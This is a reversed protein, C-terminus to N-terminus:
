GGQTTNGVRGRYFVTVRPNQPDQKTDIDVAVVSNPDINLHQLYEALSSQDPSQGNNRDQDAVTAKGLAAVLAAHRESSVPRPARRGTPMRMGGVPVPIVNHSPIQNRMSALMQTDKDINALASQLLVTQQEGTMQTQQAGVVVPIGLALTGALIATAAKHAHIV